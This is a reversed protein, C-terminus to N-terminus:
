KKNRNQLPGWHTSKTKKKNNAIETVIQKYIEDLGATDGQELQTLIDITDDSIMQVPDFSEEKSNSKDETDQKVPDKVKSLKKKALKKVKKKSSETETEPILLVEPTYAVEEEVTQNTYQVEAPTDVVQEAMTQEEVVQEVQEDVMPQEEIVQEVQEEVVQEVPKIGINKMSTLSGAILMLVALPDFVFILMIILGRVAKELLNKDAEVGYILEAIFKLPGVEAELKRYEGELKYKEDTLKDIETSSSKIRATQEDVDVDINKTTNTKGVELRLRNILKNSEGIQTEVGQRIRQIEKRAAQGQPNNSAQEIKTILAARESQKVNKWDRIKEATKKGFVGDASAGIMQQAKKTDGSDIYSQMTALTQDLKELEDKYLKGRSDIIQQQEDIAPQIRAYASDIRAQEKDIQSQIQADNGTGSTELKKINEEARSIITQQRAIEGTIREVQAVSEVSANTQDLHAKSLFGFIGMSTILMLVILATTFYAKMLIPIHNWYRYLWSAVVLKAVELSSGMIAVPIAAAAFIAVLGIISYYAAIGSLVFATLFLLIAM